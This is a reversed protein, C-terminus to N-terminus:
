FGGAVTTVSYPGGTTLNPAAFYGQSDTTITQTAGTRADTVTVTANPLAAGSENTVRGQISTTIQQAEAATTGVVASALPVSIAACTCLLVFKKM